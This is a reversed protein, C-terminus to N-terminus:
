VSFNCGNVALNNPACLRDLTQLAAVKTHEDAHPAALIDLIASRAERVSKPSAGTVLIGTKNVPPATKKTM